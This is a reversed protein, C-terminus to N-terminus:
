YIDTLSKKLALLVNDIDAKNINGMHAVRIIKGKTEGMGGALVTGYKDRLIELWHHPDVAITLKISTVTPSAIEDPVYLELGLDRIGQRLYKTLNLHKKFIKDRGQKRMSRLSEDLGYLTSIAPTAPTQNKKTFDRYLTLDFYYRPLLALYHREMAKESVAIMSIGPPASWAKQSATVLVDIGLEDMPLNVAGLSSIADVMLLPKNKHSHIFPVLESIDNLVGTSTENHTILVASINDEKELVRYLEDKNIAHGVSSRVHLLSTGYRRAIEVWRNGFEGCTFVVVKDGPSLFNVIAAELGGMGSSTLLYIDNKTQFFYKLNEIIRKQISEYESGRHNIMQQSAAKLVNGPLPTPGPIRLNVAKTRKIM